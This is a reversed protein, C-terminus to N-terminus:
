GRGLTRRLNARARAELRAHFFESHFIRESALMRELFRRRGFRYVLAPVVARYETAVGAEYRDYEEDAGGLVATDCDLFLAEDPSLERAVGHEATRLVLRRVVDADVPLAHRRIADCALEASQAENDKRSADYVADHFLAAVYAERPHRFGVEAHALVVRGAVDLAHEFVHYARPPTAYARELEAVLADPISLGEPPPPLPRPGHTM